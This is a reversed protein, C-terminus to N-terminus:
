GSFLQVRHYDNECPFGLLSSWTIDEGQIHIIHSSETGSGDQRHNCVSLEGKEPIHSRLLSKLQGINSVNQLHTSAVQLRTASSQERIQPRDPVPPLLSFTNTMVWNGNITQMEYRSGLVEVLVGWDPSCILIRGGQVKTDAVFEKVTRPVDERKRTKHVLRECLLDYTADATSAVHTNAVCVRYRNVGISVGEPTQTKLNIGKLVHVGATSAFASIRLAHYEAALDRNKFFLIGDPLHILGVTCGSGREKM